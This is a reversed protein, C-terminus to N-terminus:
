SGEGSLFKRAVGSSVVRRVYVAPINVTVRAFCPRGAIAREIWGLPGVQLRSDNNASGTHAHTPRRHRAFSCSCTPQIRLSILEIVQLQSAGAKRNGQRWRVATQHLPARHLIESKFIQFVNRNFSQFIELDEKHFYKVVNKTKMINLMFTNFGHNFYIFNTPSVYYRKHM